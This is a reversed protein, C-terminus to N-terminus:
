KKIKAGCKACVVVSEAMMEGCSECEVFGVGCPRCFPVKVATGTSIEGNCFPCVCASKKATTKKKM